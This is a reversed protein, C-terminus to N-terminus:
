FSFIKLTKEGNICTIPIDILTHILKVNEIKM